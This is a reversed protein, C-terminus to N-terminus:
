MVSHATTEAAPVAISVALAGAIGPARTASMAV